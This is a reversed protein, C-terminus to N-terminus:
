SQVYVYVSVMEPRIVKVEREWGPCLTEAITKDKQPDHTEIIGMVRQRRLDLEKEQCAFPAGGQWDCLDELEEPLKELFKMVEPFSSAELTSTQYHKAFKRIDEALRIIELIVSLQRDRFFDEKYELLERHLREIISNKHSDYKLKSQFDASLLDLKRDMASLRSEIARWPEQASQQPHEPKASDANAHM